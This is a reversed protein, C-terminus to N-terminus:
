SKIKKFFLFLGPILLSLILKQQIFNFFTRLFTSSGYYLIEFPGILLDYFPRFQPGSYEAGLEKYSVISPDWQPFYKFTILQLIYFLIYTIVSLLFSWSVLKLYINKKNRIQQYAKIVFLFYVLFISVGILPNLWHPYGDPTIRSGRKLIIFGDLLNIALLVAASYLM